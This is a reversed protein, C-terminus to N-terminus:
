EVNREAELRKAHAKVGHLVTTHDRGGCAKAIQTSSEGGIHSAMWYFEQRARVHRKFKSAGTLDSVSMGHKCAVYKLLIRSKPRPVNYNLDGDVHIEEYKFIPFVFNGAKKPEPISVKPPLVEVPPRPPISRIFERRRESRPSRLCHFLLPDDKTAVLSM